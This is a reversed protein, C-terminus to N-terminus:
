RPGRHDSGDGRKPHQHEDFDGSGRPPVRDPDAGDRGLTDTQGVPPTRNTGHKRTDSRTSDMSDGERRSLDSASAPRQPDKTSQQERNAEQSGHQQPPPAAADVEPAGRAVGWGLSGVVAVVAIGQGKWSARGGCM